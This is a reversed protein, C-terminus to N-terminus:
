DRRTAPAPSTREMIARVEDDATPAFDRYWLGVAMLREPTLACVIEDVLAGIEACIEPAAVPVAVVIAAARRERLATIAARM